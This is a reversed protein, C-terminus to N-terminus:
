PRYCFKGKLKTHTTNSPPPCLYRDFATKKIAPKDNPECTCCGVAHYGSACKPYCLLDVKDEDDNCKLRDVGYKMVGFENAGNAWCKDTARGFYGDPCDRFCLVGEVHRDWSCGDKGGPKDDAHSGWTEGENRGDKRDTQDAYCDRTLIGSKESSRPPCPGYDAGRGVGRGYTDLWCSTGDDRYRSDWDSCPKQGPNEIDFAKVVGEISNKVGNFLTDTTKKIDNQVKVNDWVNNFNRTCSITEELPGLCPKGGNIPPICTRTRKNKSDNCPGDIWDTLKGDSCTSTEELPGQPCAKGGNTPQICIRTRKANGDNCTWPSWDTLKGDTCTSNEELPDSPCPNGDNLPPICTRKRNAKGDVCSWDSWDTLKGHSCDRQEIRPVDPCPKGGNMPIFCNRTRRSFTGDCSWKSWETIIGDSCRKVEDAPCPAGGNTPPSLCPRTRKVSTGDCNGWNSWDGVKADTCVTNEILTNDPCPKGGNLPPICVRTRTANGNICKWASWDSLYGDVCGKVKETYYLSGDERKECGIGTCKNYTIECWNRSEDGVNVNPNNPLTNLNCVSGSVLGWFGPNNSAYKYYPEMSGYRENIFQYGKCGDPNSGRICKQINGTWYKEKICDITVIPELIDARYEKWPISWYKIEKGINNSEYYLVLSQEELIADNEALLQVKEANTRVKVYINEYTQGLDITWIGDNIWTVSPNDTAKYNIWKSKNCGWWSDWKDCEYVWSSSTAKSRDIPIDKYESDTGNKNKVIIDGVYLSQFRIFRIKRCPAM